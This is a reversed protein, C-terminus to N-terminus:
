AAENKIEIVKEETVPSMYVEEDIISFAFWQTGLKQYLVDVNQEVVNHQHSASISPNNNQRNKSSASMTEGGSHNFCHAGQM